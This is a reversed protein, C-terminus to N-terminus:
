LKSLTEIVQVRNQVDNIERVSVVPQPAMLMGKAVAAAIMDEGMQTQPTVSVIPVGGGLQNMASLIPSFLSTAEATMVSEGNSLRANISDSTTSGVGFVTGGTAFKASKVTKIASTIGALIAAVTSAIAALNAPFPVSQSQKIGAAIAVGSNIAIEALALVKSAIAAARNKEEAEDLLDSLAGVAQGIAKAKATNIEVEKKALQKMSENYERQLQLKRENFAEISEGEMQQAELMITQREMAELRAVELENEGAAEIRAAFDKRIAEIQQENITKEFELEEAQRKTNYALRLAELLEQRRKENTVEQTIRIEEAQQEADLEAIRLERIKLADDKAAELLLGLRTQEQEIVNQMMDASWRETEQKWEIKVAEIETRIAERAGATLTKGEEQLQNNLDEIRRSYQLDIEKRRREYEDRIIRTLADEASRVADLEKKKAEAVRNATDAAINGTATMEKGLAVEATALQGAVKTTRQYYEAEAQFVAVRKQALQDEVDAQNQTTKARAEANALDRKAFDVNRKAIGKELDDIKKLDAQQQKRDKKAADAANKRLKAIEAQDKANQVDISRRDKTLQADETAIAISERIQKNVYALLKGVVPLKEMMTMIWGVLKAGNTVWSLIWTVISQIVNLTVELLRNFPALIVRMQQTNQESSKIGKVVLGIAGAIAALTAVIPNALLSLLQKGFSSVATTATQFAQKMGGKTIDNIMTLSQYWKSNAGLANRIANEYNGVNRYYRQTEAEAEKLETTIDNIHKQLEKGRAGEREAKGMEDYQRTLVSLSARLSNLSDERGENNAKEVKATNTMEKNLQRLQDKYVRIAAENRLIADTEEDYPKGLEKNEEIQEELKANEAILGDIAEKTAKIADIAKGYDVDISLIVNDTNTAM